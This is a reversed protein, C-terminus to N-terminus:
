STSFPEAVASSSACKILTDTMNALSLYNSPKRFLACHIAGDEDNASNGYLRRQDKAREKAMFPISTRNLNLLIPFDFVPM